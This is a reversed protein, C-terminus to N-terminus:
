IKNNTLSSFFVLRPLDADKLVWKDFTSLINGILSFTIYALCATFPRCDKYIGTIILREDPQLTTSVQILSEWKFRHGERHVRVFDSPTLKNVSDVSLYLELLPDVLNQM